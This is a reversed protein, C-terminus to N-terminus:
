NCDEHKAEALLHIASKIGTEMLMCAFYEMREKTKNEPKKVYADFLITSLFIVV